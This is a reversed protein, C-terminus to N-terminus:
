SSNSVGAIFAVLTVAAVMLALSLLTGNYFFSVMMSALVGAGNMLISFIAMRSGMPESSAEIALRNLPAVVFGAGFAYIVYIIIIGWMFDPLAASLGIGIIGIVLCLTLGVHILKRVNVSEIIKKVWHNALVYSILIVAQCLSFVMPTQQFRDIVLFPGAAIWTIFGCFILGLSTATLMFSKNCVIRQYNKLIATFHLPQRKEIPLTEPMWILLLVFAIASWVMIFWFIWRWSLYELFISGVIPGLAPALVSVSGMLALLKIAAMQDFSEHIIAYGPVAMFCIGTGQIFRAVILTHLDPALACALSAMTFIFAGWCLITKRGFRDAFPGLILQVSMSGLFWATLTWQIEQHSLHLDQMVTPLAPLYMDSSLYTAMEFFVLVFPFLLRQPKYQTM